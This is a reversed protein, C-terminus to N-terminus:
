RTYESYKQRGVHGLGRVVFYAIGSVGLLLVLLVSAQELRYANVLSILTQGLFLDKTFLIRALTFDGIMWISALASVQFIVDQLQPWLIRRGISWRSAGLVQASQIQQSLGQLRPLFGARVLGPFVLLVFFLAYFFIELIQSEPRIFLVALGMVTTSPSTYARFFLDLKESWGVVALFCLAVTVAGALLGLGFSSVAALAIEQLGGPGATAVFHQLNLNGLIRLMGFLFVGCYLLLIAVTSRPLRLGHIPALTKGPPTQAERILGLALLLLGVLQLLALSLAEPRGQPLRIKESILVEVTTGRAGGLAVPISFSVFCISFILFWWNYLTRRFAGILTRVLLWPDAGHVVAVEILEHGQAQLLDSLRTAVFGSYVFSQVVIVSGLGLSIRPSISLYILIVFLSPLLGPLLLVLHFFQHWRQARLQMLGFAMLSGILVSLTASFAAQFLTNHVAWTFEDWDVSGLGGVQMIVFLYPLVLLGAVAWGLLNGTKLRPRFKM